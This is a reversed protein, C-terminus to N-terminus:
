HKLPHSVKTIINLKRNKKDVSSQQQETLFLSKEENKTAKSICTNENLRTYVIMRNSTRYAFIIFFDFVIILM